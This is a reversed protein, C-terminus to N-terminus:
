RGKKKRIYLTRNVRAVVEGDTDVINVSFDEYHPGGGSAKEVIDRIREESLEFKAFVKSRGPKVFEISGSKDWVIYDRGLNKFLMLCYFADTMAFLSGGFHSEFYNRNFWTLKLGVLIQRLDGSASKVRIGAGLLPPWFRMMNKFQMVKSLTKMM